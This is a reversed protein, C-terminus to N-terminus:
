LKIFKQTVLEKGIKLQLYYLGSNLQYVAIEKNTSGSMMEKGNASFIKYHCNSRLGIVNLQASTPNPNITIGSEFQKNPISNLNVRFRTKATDNEQIYDNTIKQLYAWGIITGLHSFSYQKSSLEQQTKGSLLPLYNTSDRFVITGTASDQFVFHLKGSSSIDMSGLNGLQVGVFQPAQTNIQEYQNFPATFQIVAADISSVALLEGQWTDNFINQDDIAKTTVLLQYRGANKILINNFSFQKQEGGNFSDLRSDSKIEVNNADLISYRIRVNKIKNRGQNMALVDLSFVTKNPEINGGPAQIVNVPYVDKAADVFFTSVLSDNKRNVDSAYNTYAVITYIGRQIPSFNPNFLITTEANTDLSTIKIDQYVKLNDRWIQYVVPVNDAVKLFGLNKVKLKPQYNTVGTELTDKAKPYSNEIASYDYPNGVFFDQKLTDNLKVLDEPMGVFVTATYIGRRSPKFSRNFNFISRSLRELDVTISDWFITTTYVSSIRLYAKISGSSMIGDNGMRVRGKFSTGLPYFVNKAPLLISDTYVDWNKIVRFNFVQTDNARFKDNVMETTFFIKFKGTDNTYYTPFNLIKSEFKNFKIAQIQNYMIQNGRLIRVRTIFTPTGRYAVNRILVVPVISDRKLQLLLNNSPEFVTQVMVDNLVGVYFNRFLSDNDSIKDDTHTVYVLTRMEGFDNPFFKKPFTYTRRRGSGLTDRISQHYLLKNNFFIKCHVRFSDTINQVGINAVEARPALTDMTYRDFSDRPASISTVALDYDAQLRPEILFRFPANPAFDIWNTDRLPSSYFFTNPRVPDELQYGFAVNNNGLQRVGAYFTGNVLVPNKIDLIYEGGISTLSDSQWILSGPKNGAKNSWIGIRFPSGGFGFNVKIQNIYKVNASYFRAMFNGTTGNFGIGGSSPAVTIDRYSYINENNLRIFRASNNQANQDGRAQVFITDRGKGSPYLVPLTIFRQQGKNISYNASDKLNSAGQTLILVKQNVIDKKGVNRVLAKVSDPNGLPIPLKGLSYVKLIEIDTDFRPFNFVISPHMDSSISLSDPAIRGFAGKTQNNAYGILSTSNELYWNIRGNFKATQVWEFALLLNEGVLSDFKYKSNNFNIKYFADATGIDGSPNQNYALLASNIVDAWAIKGAGFDSASYNKIYIKLNGGNANLALGTFRGIEISEISDGNRLGSLVQKPFIYAFRSTWTSATDPVLPGLDTRLFTGEGLKLYQGLAAKNPLLFAIYLLFTLPLKKNM